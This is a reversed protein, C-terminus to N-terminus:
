IDCHSLKTSTTFWTASTMLICCFTSLSVSSARSVRVLSTKSSLGYDEKGFYLHDQHQLAPEIMIRYQSGKSRDLPESGSPLRIRFPIKTAPAAPSSAQ